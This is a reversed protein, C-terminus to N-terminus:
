IYIPNSLIKHQDGSFLYEIKFRPSRTAEKSVGKKLINYFLIWSSGRREQVQWVLFFAFSKKNFREREQPHIFSTHTHTELDYQKVECLKREGMACNKLRKTCM